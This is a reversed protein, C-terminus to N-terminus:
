SIVPLSSRSSRSEESRESHCPHVPEFGWLGDVGWAQAGDVFSVSCVGLHGQVPSVLLLDRRGTGLGAPPLDQERYGGGEQLPPLAVAWSGLQCM